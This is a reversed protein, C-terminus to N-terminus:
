FNNAPAPSPNVQELIANDTLQAGVLAYCAAM